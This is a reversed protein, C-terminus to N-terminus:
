LEIADHRAVLVDKLKSAIRQQLQEQKLSITIKDFLVLDSILFIDEGNVATTIIKEVTMGKFQLLEEPWVSPLGALLQTYNDVNM